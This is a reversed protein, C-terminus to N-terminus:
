KVGYLAFSSYQTFSQGGNGQLTLSTVASTTAYLASSLWVVGSGNFDGGGLARLTKNKNTNTYDLLDIVMGYMTTSSAGAQITFLNSTTNDSVASTGNGFLLHVRSPTVSGNITMGINDPNTITNYMCRVQLHKYTGAISSFSISSSGGAGVTVTAISEYDGVAAAAGSELLAVTNNLM